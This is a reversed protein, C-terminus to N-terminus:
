VPTKTRRGDCQTAFVNTRTVTQWSLSGFDTTDCLNM